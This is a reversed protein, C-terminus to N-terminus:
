ILRKVVGIIKDLSGEIEKSLKMSFSLTPNGSKFINVGIFYGRIKIKSIFYFLNLVDIVATQHFSLFVNNHCDSQNLDYFDDLPIQFVEGKSYSSELEIADIIIFRCYSFQEFLTLLKFGATSGDVLLVSSPLKISKLKRIAHVGIGEDGLLVNGVGLVVTKIKEKILEIKYKCSHFTHTKGM